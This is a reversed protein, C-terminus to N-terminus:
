AASFDDILDRLESWAEDEYFKIEIPHRPHGAVHSNFEKLFRDRDAIYFVYERLGAGVRRYAEIYFEPREIQALAGELQLMQQNEAASPMGNNGSGDYEWRVVTLWPTARRADEEPMEPVYTWLIPLGDKETRVIRGSPTTGTNM